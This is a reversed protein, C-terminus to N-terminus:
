GGGGVVHPDFLEGDVLIEYDYVTLVPPKESPTSRSPHDQDINKCGDKFPCQKHKFIVTFKHGNANWTVTSNPCIYIDLPDAGNTPNVQVTTQCSLYVSNKRPKEDGCSIGLGFLLLLLMLSAGGFMVRSFHM